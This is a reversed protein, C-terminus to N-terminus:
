LYDSHQDEIEPMDRGMSKQDRWAEVRKAVQTRLKIALDHDFTQFLRVRDGDSTFLYVVYKGENSHRYHDDSWRLSPHRALTAKRGYKNTWSLKKVEPPNGYYQASGSLEVTEISDTKMRHSIIFNGSIEDNLASEWNEKPQSLVLIENDTFYVRYASLQDDTIYHYEKAHELVRRSLELNEWVGKIPSVADSKLQALLAQEDPSNDALPPKEKLLRITDMTLLLAIALIVLSTIGLEPNSIQRAIFFLVIGTIWFAGLKVTTSVASNKKAIVKNETKRKNHFYFVVAGAILLLLLEM